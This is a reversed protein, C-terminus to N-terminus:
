RGLEDVMDGLNIGIEYARRANYLAEAFLSIYFGVATAFRRSFSEM